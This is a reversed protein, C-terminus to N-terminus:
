QANHDVNTLTDNGQTSTEAQTESLDRDLSPTCLKRSRRNSKNGM